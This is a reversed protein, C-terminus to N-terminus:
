ALIYNHVFRLTMFVDGLFGSLQVAIGCECHKPRQGEQPAPRLRAAAAGRPQLAPAQLARAIAGAPDAPRQLLLQPAM